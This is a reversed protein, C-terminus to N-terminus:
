VTLLRQAKRQNSTSVALKLLMLRPSCKKGFLPCSSVACISFAHFLDLASMIVVGPNGINNGRGFSVVSLPLTKIVSLLSM